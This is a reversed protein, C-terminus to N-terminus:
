LINLDADEPTDATSLTNEDMTLLCELSIYDVDEIPTKRKTGTKTHTLYFRRKLEDTVNSADTWTDPYDPNAWKILYKTNGKSM